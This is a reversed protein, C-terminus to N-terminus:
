LGVGNNSCPRVLNSMISIVRELNDAARCPRRVIPACGERHSDTKVSGNTSVIFILERVDVINGLSVKYKVAYKLPYMIEAAQYQAAGKKGTLLSQKRKKRSKNVDPDLHGRETTQKKGRAEGRGEVNVQKTRKDDRQPLEETEGSMKGRIFSVREVPPTFRVKFAVKEGPPVVLVAESVSDSAGTAVSFILAGEKKIDRLHKEFTREDEPSLVSSMKPPKKEKKPKGKAQPEPTPPPTPPKDLAARTFVERIQFPLPASCTNKIELTLDVTRGTRGEFRYLLFDPTFQYDPTVGSGSMMLPLITRAGHLEYM